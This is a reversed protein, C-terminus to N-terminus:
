SQDLLWNYMKWDEIAEEENDYYDIHYINAHKDFVDVRWKSEGKIYLLGPYKADPIKGAKSSEWNRYVNIADELETFYGIHYNKKTERNFYAARWKKNPDYWTVNNVGSEQWNKTVHTRTVIELNDLLDNHPNGDIHKISKTLDNGDLGLFCQAVLRSLLRRLIRKDKRVIVLHGENKLFKVLKLQKGEKKIKGTNSVLYPYDFGELTKWIEEM